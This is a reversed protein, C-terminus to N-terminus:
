LGVASPKPLLQVLVWIEPQLSKGRKSPNERGQVSGCTRKLAKTSAEWPSLYKEGELLCLLPARDVDWQNNVGTPFTPSLCGSAKEATLVLVVPLAAQAHVTSHHGDVGPGGGVPGGRKGLQGGGRRSVQDHARLRQGWGGWYCEHGLAEECESPWSCAGPVKRLTDKKGHGM